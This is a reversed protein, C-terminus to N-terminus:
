CEADRRQISVQAHMLGLQAEPRPMRGADEAAFARIYFDFADDARGDMALYPIVGQMPYPEAM